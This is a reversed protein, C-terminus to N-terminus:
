SIQSGLHFSSPFSTFPLFILKWFASKLQRQLVAPLTWLYLNAFSLCRSSHFAISISATKLLHQRWLPSLLFWLERPIKQCQGANPSNTDGSVMIKALYDILMTQCM